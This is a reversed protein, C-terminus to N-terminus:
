TGEFEPPRKELFARVGEAQDATGHLMAILETSYGYGEDSGRGLIRKAASLALPARAAILGALREAEALHEGEPTVVNVLGVQRATEADLREGTFVMYKMWHLNVHARGRVVGLGPVLGVASEPMGFRATQDAVVIDCVMTLECGGGLAWGHVAAITPQPLEEVQRLTRLCEDSFARRAGASGLGEFSSIDGGVSFCRGAGHVVVVRVGGDVAATDLAARLEPWFRRSMANLHDPRNLTLWGVAGRKEFDVEPL